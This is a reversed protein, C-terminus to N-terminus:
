WLVRAPDCSRLREDASVLLADQDVATAYIVRDAPDGHFEVPDLSGARLATSVTPALARVEHISLADAIWTEVPRDMTLRGRAVLYAIEQVSAISIALEHAAEIKERAVSSLRERAGALWVLVHTDLLIV